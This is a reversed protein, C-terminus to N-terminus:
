LGGARVTIRQVLTTRVAKALREADSRLSHLHDDPMANLLAVLEGPNNDVTAEFADLARGGYTQADNV